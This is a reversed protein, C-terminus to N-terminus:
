FKLKRRIKVTKICKPSATIDFLYIKFGSM